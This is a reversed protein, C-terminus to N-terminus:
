AAVAVPKSRISYTAPETTTRIRRERPDSHSALTRRPVDNSRQAAEEDRPETLQQLTPQDLGHEHEAERGDQPEEQQAPQDM